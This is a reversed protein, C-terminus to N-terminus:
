NGRKVPTTLAREVPWGRKVRSLLSSYNLNLETAWQKLNQRKGAYEVWVTTRRNNAQEKHPLWMCNQKCYDGDVDLREISYGPGPRRGMAGIFGEFTSFEDSVKIGRAGYRPYDVNTPNECRQRMHVWSNYEPTDGMGHTTAAVVYLCGCSKRQRGLETVVHAGCDCLCLHMMRRGDRGSVNWRQAYNPVM